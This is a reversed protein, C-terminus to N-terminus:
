CSFRRLRAQYRQTLEGYRGGVDGAGVADRGIGGVVRRPLDARDSVVVGAAGEFAEAVGVIIGPVADGDERSRAGLAVGEIQEVSEGFDVIGVAINDGVGVIGVPIAQGLGDVAGRAGRGVIIGVL